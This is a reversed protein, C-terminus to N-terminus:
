RAEWEADFRDECASPTIEDRLSSFFPHQLAEQM